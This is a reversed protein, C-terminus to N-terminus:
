ATGKDRYPRLWSRLWRKKQEAFARDYRRRDFGGLYCVVDEYPYNLSMEAEATLRAYTRESLAEVAEWNNAEEESLIIALAFRLEDITM